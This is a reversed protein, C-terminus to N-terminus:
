KNILPLEVFFTTGKGEGESEFWIKGKHAEVVGKAFVLGYGSSQVNIKISDPSVGGPKFLKPKDTDRIGVGTDKVTLLIKGEENKLHVAVSGQPTYYISNDILNRIAENLHDIDGLIDYTGEEISLNLELSKKVAMEKEKLVIESVLQKFDFPKMDYLLTGDKASSGRLVDTVYRVGASSQNLGEQILPLALEPVKGYDDTMLEAFIDRNKGLYGKIQHNMIHILNTQGANSDALKANTIKLKQYILAKDLAVSIVDAFSKISEREYDIIDDYVRNISIVFFGITINETVIPYVISSRIHGDSQIKTYLSDSLHNGWIDKIDETYKIVKKDVVYKLFDTLSSVDFSISELDIGTENLTKEVRESESVSLTNIEDRDDNFLFIGVIEFNFDSKIALSIKEALEKPELSLISIEYLTDLLSLTKNKAATEQNQKYLQETIKSIDDTVPSTNASLPEAQKKHSFSFM